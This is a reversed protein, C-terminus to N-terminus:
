HTTKLEFRGELGINDTFNGSLGAASLTGSYKNNLEVGDNEIYSTEEFSINSGDIKGVIGTKTKGLTPWYAYGTFKDGQVSQVVVEFPYPAYKIGEMPLHVIGAIPAVAISPTSAISKKISLRYKAADQVAEELISDTIFEPTVIEVGAAVMGDLM